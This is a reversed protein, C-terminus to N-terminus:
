RSLWYNETGTTYWVGNYYCYASINIGSGTFSTITLNYYDYCEDSYMMTAGDFKSLSNEIVVPGNQGNAIKVYINDTSLGKVVRITFQVEGSNDRYYNNLSIISPNKIFNTVTIAFAPVVSMVIMVACLAVLSLTKSVKKM